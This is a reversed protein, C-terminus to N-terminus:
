RWLALDVASFGGANLSGYEGALPAHEPIVGPSLVAFAAFAPLIPAGGVRSLTCDCSGPDIM